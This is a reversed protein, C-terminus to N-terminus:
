SGPAGASQCIPGSCTPRPPSISCGCGIRAAPLLGPWTTGARSRRRRRAHVYTSGAWRLERCRGPRLEERWTSAAPRRSGSGSLGRPRARQPRRRHDPQRPMQGDVDRHYLGPLLKRMRLTARAASSSSTSLSSRSSATRDHKPRQRTSACPRRSGAGHRCPRSPAASPPPSRAWPTPSAASRSWRLRRRAARQARPPGGAARGRLRRRRRHHRRGHGPHQARAAPGPRDDPHLGQRGHDARRAAARRALAAASASAPERSGTLFDLEDDSLKVIHPRPWARRPHRGPPQRRGAVLPLRLNVDYSISSAPPRPWARRRAAGDRAAARRGPQDFRLPLRPRAAIASQTSRTPRSCCTPAPTATSCSSASATPACPSSPWPPAPGRSSACAAGRRRGRGGAHAALFHGFPDDGVKGMFASSSAWGPWARRRRQRCGRGAGQRLGACRGPGTGTVTPVFDILLDGFCVVDAM